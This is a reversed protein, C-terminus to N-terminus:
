FLIIRSLCFPYGLWGRVYCLGPYLFGSILQPLDKSFLTRFKLPVSSAINVIGTWLVLYM